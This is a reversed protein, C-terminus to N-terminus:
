SGITLLNLADELAEIIEQKNVIDLEVELVKSSGASRLASLDEKELDLCSKYFLIRHKLFSIKEEETLTM